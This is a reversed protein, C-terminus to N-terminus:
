QLGSLGFPAASSSGAGSSILFEYLVWHNQTKKSPMEWPMEMRINHAYKLCHQMYSSTSTTAGLQPHSWWIEVWIVDPKIMSFKWQISPYILIIISSSIRTYIYDIYKNYICIRMIYICWWTLTNILVMTPPIGSFIRWPLTRTARLTRLWCRTWMPFTVDWSFRGGRLGRTPLPCSIPHLM